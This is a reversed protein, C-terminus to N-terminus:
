LLSLLLTILIIILVVLVALKILFNRLNNFSVKALMKSIGFIINIIDRNSM